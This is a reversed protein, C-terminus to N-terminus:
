LMRKLVNDRRIFHHYLAAGIHLALLVVWFYILQEHIAHSLHAIWSGKALAPITFWGYFSIGHGGLLSMLMGSMPAAFILVYLMTHTLHASTRQWQPIDKPLTPVINKWRWLLRVTVLFLVVVGTSKHYLYFPIREPTKPLGVMYLGVSIMALIILALLWHLSKSVIGYTTKTNKLTLTSM